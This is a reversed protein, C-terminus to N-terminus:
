KMKYKKMTSSTCVIIQLLNKESFIRRSKRFDPFPYLILCYTEISSWISILFYLFVAFFDLFSFYSFKELLFRYFNNGPLITTIWFSEFSDPMCGIKEIYSSMELWIYRKDSDDSWSFTSGICLLDEFFDNWFKYWTTESNDASSSCTDIRESMLDSEFFIAISDTYESCPNISSIGGIILREEFFDECIISSYEWMERETCSRFDVIEGYPIFEDSCHRMAYENWFCCEWTTCKDSGLKSELMTTIDESNRSIYITRRTLSCIHEDGATLCFTDSACSINELLIKIEFTDSTSHSRYYFYSWYEGIFFFANGVFCYFFSYGSDIFERAICIEFHRIKEDCERHEFYSSMDCEILHSLIM